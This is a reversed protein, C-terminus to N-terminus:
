VLDAAPRQDDDAREARPQQREGIEVGDANVVHPHRDARREEHPAHDVLAVVGYERAHVV